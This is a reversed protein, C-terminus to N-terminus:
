ATIDMINKAIEDFVANSSCNPSTGDGNELIVPDFPIKGLFRINNESSLSEGGGSKFPHSVKGCHPCSYGSMNELIGLVPMQMTKAFTVAKKCDLVSIDQPTTVIVCSASPVLQALTLPEDGTGPPSDIILYELEGWQTEGLFREIMNYKMPGRWIVAQNDGDLLFAISMVWLNPCVLVPVLHNEETLRVETKGLGLMKPVNPGHIDIDLLGVTAGSLSLSKALNVSVTSKGVGGKGSLILIKNRVKSLNVIVKSDSM